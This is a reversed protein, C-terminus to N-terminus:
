ESYVEPNFTFDFGAEVGAAVTISPFTAHLLLTGSASYIGAEDFTTANQGPPMVVAARIESQANRELTLTVQNGPQYMANGPARGAAGTGILAHHPTLSGNTAGLMADAIYSRFADTLRVRM